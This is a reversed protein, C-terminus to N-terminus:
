DRVIGFVGTGGMNVSGIGDGGAAEDGVVGGTVLV